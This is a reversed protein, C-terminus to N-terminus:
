LVPMGAITQLQAIINLKRSRAQYICVCVCEMMENMGGDQAYQQTMQPPEDGFVSAAQPTGVPEFLGSRQSAGTPVRNSM